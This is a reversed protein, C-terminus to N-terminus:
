VQLPPVDLMRRELQGQEVFFLLDHESANWDLGMGRQAMAEAAGLGLDWLRERSAITRDWEIVVELWPNIDALPDAVVHAAALALRNFRASARAPFEQPGRLWYRRSPRGRDAAQDRTQHGGARALTSRYTWHVYM